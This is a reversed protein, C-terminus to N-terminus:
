PIGNKVSLNTVIAFGRICLPKRSGRWSFFHMVRELGGYGGWTTFPTQDLLLDAQATLTIDWDLAYSEDNLPVYTIRRTEAFVSGSSANPRDWRQEHSLTISGNAGHTVAPPLL